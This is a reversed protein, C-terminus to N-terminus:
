SKPRKRRIGWVGALVVLWGAGLPPAGGASRCGGDTGGGGQEDNPSTVVVVSTDSGVDGATTVDPQSEELCDPTGDGDSDTEAVGCGCDGPETKNADDPCADCRDGVGDEDADPQEPDATEPCVDESDAVGDGDADPRLRYSYVAGRGTAHARAVKPAGVLGVGDGLAVARGYRDQVSSGDSELKEQEAWADEGRVFVHTTGRWMDDTNRRSAGPAGVLAVGDRLAVSRGFAEIDTPDAPAWVDVNTWEGDSRRYELVAGRLQDRGDPEVGSAGVLIRDGDVAVGAGIYDGSAPEHASFKLYEGDDWGDAGRKYVHASGVVPTDIRRDRPAGAVLTDGELALSNGFEADDESISVELMQEEWGGNTRRYTYVGGVDTFVDSTHNSTPAGIAVMDDEVEVARGFGNDRYRINSGVLTDTREWTGDDREFVYAAGVGGIDGKWGREAGVVIRDGDIGVGVGFHPYGNLDEVVQEPPGLTQEHRWQGEERVFVHAAGPREAEPSYQGVVARGDAIDVSIGFGDGATEPPMVRGEPEVLVAGQASAEGAGVALVPVAVLWVVMWRYVDSMEM